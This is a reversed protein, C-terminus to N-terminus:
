EALHPFLSCGSIAFEPLLEGLVEAKTQRFIENPYHGIRFMRTRELINGFVGRGTSSKWLFYEPLKRIRSHRCHRIQIMISPVARIKMDVIGM